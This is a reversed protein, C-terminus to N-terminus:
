KTLPWGYAEAISLLIEFRILGDGSSSNTMVVAGQGREPYVWLLSTSGWTGGTHQFLLDQGEGALHFGLGYSDSLLQNPTDIQPTLMENAIEQSLVKDSQGKCALMIEIAFRALDSPTTWLGGAALLPLHLREGEFPQGNVDHETTARARLDEPLPQEFTSSTMGLPELVAESMFEPFPQQNVDVVVLEVIAYDANAYRYETGPVSTVRTVGDVDVGPEADLLQQITVTPAEGAPTAYTPVPDSSARNTFGDELGASHSLLRRLTVKEEKTYENESVQWSVLKDNVNEDLDLLRREVLTLVAAASVSKAISGAHFLTDATVLEDGGAELVGYGKAWEIEFDNILAISVGPVQYHVMREALTGKEEWMVQGNETMAVLGNEVRRIREDISSATPIPSPSAFPQGCSTLLLTLTMATLLLKKNM